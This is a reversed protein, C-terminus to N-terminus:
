VTPPPVPPQHSMSSFKNKVFIVNNEPALYSNVTYNSILAVLHASAHGCHDYDVEAENQDAMQSYSQEQLPNCKIDNFAWASHSLLISIILLTFLRNMPPINAWSSINILFIQISVLIPMLKM